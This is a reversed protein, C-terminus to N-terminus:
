EGPQSEQHGDPLPDPWPGKGSVVLPVGHDRCLAGLDTLLDLLALPTSAGASECGVVIRACPHGAAEPPEARPPQDTLGAAPLVGHVAPPLWVTFTSGEGPESTVSVDGGHLEVLRKTLALGLGTGEPRTGGPSSIQEFERFLRGLDEARIGIGTDSVILRVGDENATVTLTVRGGPLTFKIANSLLNILVQRLRVADGIVSPLQDPVEAILEVGAEEALRRVIGLTADVLAELFVPEQAIEMRGVEVKSLDLVDDVLRLLHRGAGHVHRVFALQRPTLPGFDQGELIEAFGIVANLPTRLEHSMNALFTSKARNASEAAEKASALAAEHAKQATIDTLLGLSEIVRGQEDRVPSASILLPLETGDARLLTNEYVEIVGLERALASQIGAAADPSMWSFAPRGLMDEVPLGLMGAAKPNAYTIIGRLDTVVIGQEASEAVRRFWAESRHLAGTADHLATVDQLSGRILCPRRREPPLLRGLTQVTRVTGDPRQIRHTVSAGELSTQATVLARIVRQRDGPHILNVVADAEMETVGEPLALLRATEKSITVTRQAFDWEWSGIKAARQTEELLATRVALADELAQRARVDRMIGTFFREGEVVFESIALDLPLTSGDKHRGPVVRGVGIIHKEGTREYRELYGDHRRGYFRPMLMSINQGVVEEVAYGFMRCAASNFTDIIGRSDITIVADVTAEVAARLRAGIQDCRPQRAALERAASRAVLFDRYWDLLPQVFALLAEDYGGPRNALGLMGVLRDNTRIPLVVLSHLTEPAHEPSHEPSGTATAALAAECREALIRGAAGGPAAADADVSAHASFVSAGSTPTVEGIVGHESETLALLDALLAAHLAPGPADAISLGQARRIADLLLAAGRETTSTAPPTM